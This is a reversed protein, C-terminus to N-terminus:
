DTINQWKQASIVEPGQLVACSDELIDGSSKARMAHLLGHFIASPPHLIQHFPYNISAFISSMWPTNELTVTRRFAENATRKASFAFNRAM